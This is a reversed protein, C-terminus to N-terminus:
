KSEDMNDDGKKGNESKGEMEKKELEEWRAEIEANEREADFGLTGGKEVPLDKEHLFPAELGASPFILANKGLDICCRHRKLMDLGFLCDMNKDGLGEKSDMVTISCPFAYGGIELDVIHIKGLIKGTGVGVATGEFRDDLLHLLGLREACCSSMITMQAGSDVFVQLPKQKVSCNIYLMLVRGMSEPYEEMMQEYQRQVNEKRIKEGFYRNAEEDHPNTHLRSTMEREKSQKEHLALFRSVSSKMMTERWITSMQTINRNTSILKKYVTPNHYNLEKLLNPHNPSLFLTMLHTVNPNRSIADDLNMGPWEIPQSPTPASLGPINFTLGGAAASPAAAAASSTNNAALINSFDLGGAAAPPPNPRARQRAPSGGNNNSQLENARVVTLFEGDKIGASELTRDGSNADAIKTRDRLIVIDGDLDLLASAFSTLDSLTASLPLSIADTRSTTPHFITINIESM